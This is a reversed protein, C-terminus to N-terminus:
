LYDPLNYIAELWLKIKFHETGKYTSSHVDKCDVLYWWTSMLGMCWWGVVHTIHLATRQVVFQDEPHKTLVELICM